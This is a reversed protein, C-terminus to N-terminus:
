NSTKIQGHHSPDTTKRRVGKPKVAVTFCVPVPAMLGTGVLIFLLPFREQYLYQDGQKSHVDSKSEEAKLIQNTAM